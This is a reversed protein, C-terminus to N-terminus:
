QHRHRGVNTRTLTLPMELAHITSTQTAMEFFTFTTLQSDSPFSPSITCLRYKNYKRKM